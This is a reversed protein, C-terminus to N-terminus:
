LTQTRPMTADGNSGSGNYVVRSRSESPEEAPYSVLINYESTNLKETNESRPVNLIVLVM